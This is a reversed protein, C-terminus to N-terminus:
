MDPDNSVKVLGDHAKSAVFSGKEWEEDTEEGRKYFYMPDQKKNLYTGTITYVKGTVKSQVLDGPSWLWTNPNKATQIAKNAQMQSVEGRVANKLSRHFDDIGESTPTHAQHSVVTIGPQKLRKIDGMVPSSFELPFALVGDDLETKPGLVYRSHSLGAAKAEKATLVLSHMVGDPNSIKQDSKRRDVAARMKPHQESSVFLTPVGNVQFIYAFIKPVNNLIQSSLPANFDVTVTNTQIATSKNILDQIATKLQEEAEEPSNGSVNVASYKKNKPIAIGRFVNSNAQPAIEWRLTWDYMTEEKTRPVAPAPPKARKEKRTEETMDSDDASDAQYKVIDNYHEMSLTGKSASLSIANEAVHHLDMDTKADEKAYELLRIFLPVDFTVTDTPNSIKDVAEKIVQRKNVKASVKDALKKSKLKTNNASEALETEVQRVYKNVNSQLKPSKQNITKSKAPPKVANDGVSTDKVIALFKKMDGSEIAPKKEASDLTQLIKKMDM